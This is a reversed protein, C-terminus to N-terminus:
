SSSFHLNENIEAKKAGSVSMMFDRDDCILVHM